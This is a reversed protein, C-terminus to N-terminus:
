PYRLIFAPLELFNVKLYKVTTYRSICQNGM